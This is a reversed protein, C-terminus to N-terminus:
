VISVQTYIFWTCKNWYVLLLQKNEVTVHFNQSLLVYSTILKSYSHKNVGQHSYYIFLLSHTHAHMYSYSMAWKELNVAM